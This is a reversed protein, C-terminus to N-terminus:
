AQAICLGVNQFTGVVAQDAVRHIPELQRQTRGNTRASWVFSAYDVMPAVTAMFLQQTTNPQQLTRLWKLAMVVRLGRKVMRADHEQYRLQQDLVVERIKALYGNEESCSSNKM